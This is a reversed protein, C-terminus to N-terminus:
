RNCQNDPYNSYYQRLLPHSSWKQGSVVDWNWIIHHMDVGISNPTVMCGTQINYYYVNQSGNCMKQHYYQHICGATGKWIPHYCPAYWWQDPIMPVTHVVKGIHHQPTMPYYAIVQWMDISASSLKCTGIQPFYKFQMSSHIGHDVMRSVASPICQGMWDEIQYFITTHNM